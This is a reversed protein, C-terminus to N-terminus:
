IMNHRSMNRYNERRHAYTFKQLLHFCGVQSKILNQLLFLPMYFTIHRQKQKRNGGYMQNNVELIKHRNFFINM